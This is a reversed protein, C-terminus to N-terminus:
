QPRVLVSRLGVGPLHLGGLVRQVVDLQVPVDAAEDVSGPQGHGGHVDDLQVPSLRGVEQIHAATHLFM